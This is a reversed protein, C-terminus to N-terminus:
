LVLVLMLMGPQILVLLLLLIAWLKADAVTADGTIAAEGAATAAFAAATHSAVTATSDVTPAGVTCAATADASATVVTASTM